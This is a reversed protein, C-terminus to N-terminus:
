FAYFKKFMMNMRKNIDKIEKEVKKTSYITSCKRNSVGNVFTEECQYGVPIRKKPHKAKSSPKQKKDKKNAKQDKKAKKKKGGSLAGNSIINRIEQRINKTSEM